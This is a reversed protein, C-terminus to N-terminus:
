LIELAGNNISVGAPGSISTKAKAKVDVTGGDIAVQPGALKIAAGNGNNLEVGQAGLSLKQQSSTQLTTGQASLALKDGGATQLTIGQPSLVLKDGGKTQLLVGTASLVLKEGAATKLTIGGTGPTDDIVFCSGGETRMVLRQYSPPIVAESPLQPTLEWFCGTWIPYDPDGHEFEIWVNAGQAPLALFGLGKGGFPMCPLAWGCAEDGTVDPVRAQIRGLYLPDKNSVVTGRYKGYFPQTM